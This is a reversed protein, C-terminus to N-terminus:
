GKYIKRMVWKVKCIGIEVEGPNKTLTSFWGELKKRGLPWENSGVAWEYSGLPWEYCGLSWENCGM